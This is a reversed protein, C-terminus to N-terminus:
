KEGGKNNPTATKNKIIILKPLRFETVFVKM